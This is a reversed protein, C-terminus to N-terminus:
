KKEEMIERIIEATNSRLENLTGSNDIVCDYYGRDVIVDSDDSKNGYELIAVEPRDVYLTKCVVNFYESLENIADKAKKIEDKERCDYFIILPRNRRGDTLERYVHLLLDRTPGNCNRIYISKIYSMEKRFQENKDGDWGLSRMIEYIKGVSSKSEITYIGGFCEECIKQIETKGSLPKGNVILVAIKSEM